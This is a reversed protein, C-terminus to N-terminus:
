GLGRSSSSNRSENISDNPAYCFIVSAIIGPTVGISFFLICPILYVFAPMTQMFDLIPTIIEEVRKESFVM